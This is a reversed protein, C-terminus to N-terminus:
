PKTWNGGIIPKEDVSAKMVADLMECSEYFEATKLIYDQIGMRYNFYLTEKVDPNLLVTMKRLQFYTEKDHKNLDLMAALTAAAPSRHMGAYCHILVPKYCLCTRIASDLASIYNHDPFDRDDLGLRFYPVKGPLVLPNYKKEELLENNSCVNIVSGVKSALFAVSDYSGWWINDTLKWHM